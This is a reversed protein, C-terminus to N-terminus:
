ITWTDATVAVLVWGSPREEFALRISSWNFDVLEGRGRRHFEVVNAAPFADPLNAVTNSLGIREDVGVVDPELLAPSRRYRGIWGGITDVIATGVGDSYGWIRLQDQGTGLQPRRIRVRRQPDPSVYANASFTIGEEPVFPDLLETGNESLLAQRVSEAADLLGPPVGADDSALLSGAMARNVTWALNSQGPLVDLTPGGDTRTVAFTEVTSGGPYDFRVDVEPRVLDPLYSGRVEEVAYPADCLRIRCYNELLLPFDTVATAGRELLDNLVLVGDGDAALLDAAEEWQRAALSDLVAVVLEEADDGGFTPEDGPIEPSLFAANVWGVEGDLTVVSYWTGGDDAIACDEALIVTGEPLTALRTGRQYDNRLNLGGDPDDEPINAVAYFPQVNVRGIGCVSPDIVQQDDGNGGDSGDGGTGDGPAGSGDGDTPQDDDGTGADPLPEAQITEAATEGTDVPGDGADADGGDSCSAVLLAFAAAAAAVRRASGPSMGSTLGM